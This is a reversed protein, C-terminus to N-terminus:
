NRPKEATIMKYLAFPNNKTYNFAKEIGAGFKKNVMFNPFFGFKTININRFGTNELVKTLRSNTMNLIGKENKWGMETVVMMQIYYLPNTPNPEVFAIKGGKKIASNINKLAIKIELLHHLVHFGCVVDFEDKINSSYVDLNMVKANPGVANKLRKLMDGAADSVTLKYGRKILATSFRGYGAGVELIKLSKDIKSRKIFEEIIINVFPTDAVFMYAHDHSYYKKINSLDGAIKDSIM